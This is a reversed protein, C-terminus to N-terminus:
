ETVPPNDQRPRRLLGVGLLLLLLSAALYPLIPNVEYLLTCLLPMMVMAFGQAAAVSGAAAGQEERNVSNAAIAQVSPFVLGLGVATICYSVILGFPTPWLTVLLFGAAALWAGAQLCLRSNIQKMRSMSGQVLILTIGVGTMAMGAARAAAQADLHLRDLAYFGVSMQAAIVSGMAMFIAFVPLRIRPDLLPVRVKPPMAAPKVGPLRWALWILAPVPLLAAVFLPVQLGIGALLGSMLPGMVMGIASAAGLRAMAPARDAPPTVDAVQAASVPPIAAYFVGMLARLLVLGGLLWWFPMAQQLAQNFFLALLLYAVFFGSGAMLLVPKRGWRDSRVGWFRAFLMWFVGSVTVVLGGHWESLGLSRVLPGIVPVFAMMATMCLINFPYLAGIGPKM